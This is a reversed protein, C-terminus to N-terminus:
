PELDFLRITGLFAHYSSSAGGLDPDPSSPATFPAAAAIPGPDSHQASTALGVTSKGKFSGIELIRGEGPAAAAM